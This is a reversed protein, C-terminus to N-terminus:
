RSYATLEYYESLVFGVDRDLWYSSTGADEVALDITLATFDGAPTSVETEDTVVYDYTTHISYSGSSTTTEGTVDATWTSGVALGVPVSLFGEYTSSVANTVENDGIVTITESESADVYLGVSDCHMRTWSTTTTTSSAGELTDHGDIEITTVGDATVISSVVVGRTGTYGSTEMYADTMVYSWSDGVARYGTYAGCTGVQDGGGGTDDGSDDGGGTDGTKDEDSAAPCGALLILPLLTRLM